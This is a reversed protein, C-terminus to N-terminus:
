QEPVTEVDTPNVWKAEMKEGKMMRDYFNRTKAESYPYSDFIAGKGEMRPDKQEKLEKEMQQVLRQKIDAYKPDNALNNMNDFDQDFRYLEEPGKKGFSIEWRRVDTGNRRGNLIETKTPSGDTDLYGTEPNGAPWRSPEYNKTYIFHDKIIGRVPYGQDHPRGVDTREKGILVHDRKPEVIGQKDSKLISLFSEGQIDNMIQKDRKVGAAELITPALDIFSIFDEIKRKPHAIGEKWMVALPLHNDYEYVHGKIRPFPMGNDSTVIIITNDLEGKKELIDLIKGLNQDFYEVEFAYDLMDNRVVENDPWFAPVRDIDSLKKNGKALGSGYEYTRHPEHGGYWFSFPEEPNRQNMFDEFNGAYDTTSISSTPAKLKKTMFPKGTLQRPKGDLSGPKGPAWGKGTFGTQYGQHALEEMWTRFKAPFFPVHNAAEELQWPNRGTLICSRSPACKANPTYANMFLVGENAVRNFNPTNVWKTLGYAGMHQFSADDAICFLINPRKPKDESAQSQGSALLGVAILLPVFYKKSDIM